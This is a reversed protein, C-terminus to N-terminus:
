CNLSIILLLLAALWPGYAVLKEKTPKSFTASYRDHANKFIFNNLGLTLDRYSKVEIASAQKSKSTSTRRSTTRKTTKKAM